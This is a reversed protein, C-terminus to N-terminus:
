FRPKLRAKNPMFVQHGLNFGPNRFLPKLMILYLLELYIPIRFRPKLRAKNPM